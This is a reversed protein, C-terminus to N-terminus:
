VRSARKKELKLREKEQQKALLKNEYEVWEKEIFPLAYVLSLGGYFILGNPIQTLVGNGYGGLQMAVFASCFAAGVGRLSPSNIKFLVIWCAFFLMVATCILFLTIGVVGTHQWIFVYESDPPLTSLKRFKNNAPVNEYGIGIGIGFPADALYKKMIAQNYERQGTSADKRDFATRMRRIQQNGNGINTFALIFVFLAFVAIVPIAIKVSKSLFIYTIIGAFFCFIATRTGSPFMAWFCGIGTILFLMRLKKIKTTIALILFATASAAMSIGFCAADNFISFYRILTGGQLIHTNRGRTQIWSNESATFGFTKQKWVWFVAFLSLLAWVILYRVLNEPTTIYIIYVLFAYLLQFAMLRAGTYWAGVNLGLGCTDNLVELTCFLCWCMLAYLMMNATREFKAEKVDLIALALLIFELLENPLSTPIPLELWKAMIFYNAVMLAWFTFMRYHFAAIVAIVLIPSLCVIAFASFGATIFQYIALLFLLLLLSVRGGNDQAYRQFATSAAM